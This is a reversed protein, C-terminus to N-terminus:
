LEKYLLCVAGQSKKQRDAYIMIKRIDIHKEHKEKSCIKIYM